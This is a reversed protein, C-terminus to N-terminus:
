AVGAARDPHRPGQREDLLPRVLLSVHPRRERPAPQRPQPAAGHGNSPARAGPLGQDSRTPRRHRQWRRLRFHARRRLARARRLSRPVDTRYLHQRAVLGQRAPAARRGRAAPQLRPLLRARLLHGLAHHQRLLRPHPERGRRPRQAEGTGRAGRVVAGLPARDRVRRGRRDAGGTAHVTARSRPIEPQERLRASARGLEGGARHPARARAVRSGTGRARLGQHPAPGGRDQHRAGGFGAGDSQPRHRRGHRAAPCAEGAM